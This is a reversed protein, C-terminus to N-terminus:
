KSIGSKYSYNSNKENFERNYREVEYIASQIKEKTVRYPVHELESNVETKILVDELNSSPLIDLDELSTPLGIAKHFLFTDKFLRNQQDMMLQVLTGYSVIEGHLHKKEVEERITLGYFLAHSLASNYQPDVLLSVCGTTIIINQIVNEVSQTINGKEIDMLAQVGDRIVPYYCNESIKIGLETCYNLDDNRASFSSEIHKAMTDGIGAWIYKKPAKVIIEPQIFCHIPPKSLTRVEKFAKHDDYVISIKTVAACTSAITPVTIVPVSLADGACKVTDICKGGGVAILYDVDADKSAKAVVKINEDTCEGGYHMSLVVLIDKNHLLSELYPLSAQFARKGYVLGVKSYKPVYQTLKILSNKGMTFDPLFSTKM